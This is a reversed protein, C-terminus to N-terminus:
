QRKKSGQKILFDFIFGCGFLMWGNFGDNSCSYGGGTVQAEGFYCEYV